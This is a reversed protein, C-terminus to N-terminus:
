ILSVYIAPKVKSCMEISICPGAHLLPACLQVEMQSRESLYLLGM